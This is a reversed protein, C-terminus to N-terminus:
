ETRRFSAQDGNATGLTLEVRQNSFSSVLMLLDFFPGELSGQPCAIETSTMNTLQFDNGGQSSYQASYLNCDSRGSVTDDTFAVTFDGASGTYETAGIKMTTMEWATGPLSEFGTNETSSSCGTFAFVTVAALITVISTVTGSENNIRNTM